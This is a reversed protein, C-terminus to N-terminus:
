FRTVRYDCYKFRLEGKQPYRVSLKTPQATTFNSESNRAGCTWFGEQEILVSSLRISCDLSENGFAPFTKVTLETETNSTLGRWTWQCQKVQEATKCTLLLEQGVELVTDKTVESFVVALTSFLFFCHIKCILVLATVLVTITSEIDNVKKQSSSHQVTRLKADNRHRQGSCIVDSDVVSEKISKLPSSFMCAAMQKPIDKVM